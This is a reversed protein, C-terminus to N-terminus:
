RGAGLRASGFYVDTGAPPYPDDKLMVSKGDKVWSAHSELDTVSLGLVAAIENAYEAAGICHVPSDAAARTRYFMGALGSPWARPDAQMWVQGPQPVIDVETILQQNAGLTVFLRDMDVNGSIGPVSGSSTFQWMAISTWPPPPGPEAGTYAADWLPYTAIEANDHRIHPTIYWGGSYFWATVGAAKIVRLFTLARDTQDGSGTELDLALFMYARQTSGAKALAAHAAQTPDENANLFYYLALTLGVDAIDQANAVLNPDKLNWVVGQVGAAKVKAFDPTGQYMSGDLWLESM